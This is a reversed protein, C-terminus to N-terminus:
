TPEAPEAGGPRTRPGEEDSSPAAGDKVRALLRMVTFVNWGAFAVFLAILVLSWRSARPSSGDVLIWADPPVTVGGKEAVAGRLSAHRLGADSFPVLRGAFTTPPIFRPGEFGEPVRIEVWIKDNGALPALRFSDSEAARGYRIAGQTGLMGTGQVYHNAQSSSPTFNKLAGVEEPAGRALAYHAEGRLSWAMVLAAISTLLMLGVAIGRDRKPPSPLAILEPDPEVRSVMEIAEGQPAGM